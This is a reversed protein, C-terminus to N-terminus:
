ANLDERKFKQRMLDNQLADVDTHYLNDNWISEIKEKFLISKDLKIKEM